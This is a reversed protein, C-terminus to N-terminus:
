PLFRSFPPPPLDARGSVGDATATLFFARSEKRNQEPYTQDQPRPAAFARGSPLLAAAPFRLADYAAGPAAWAHFWPKGDLCGAGTWFFGQGSLRVPAALPTFAGDAALAATVAEAQEATWRAAFREGRWPLLGAEIVRVDEDWVANHALRLSTTGPACAAHLDDGSIFSFWTLRRVAPDAVDGTAACGSLLAGAACVALAARAARFPTSRHNM